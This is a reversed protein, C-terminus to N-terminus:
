FDAFVPQGVVKLQPPAKISYTYTLVGEKNLWFEFNTEGSIESVACLDSTLDGNLDLFASSQPVKLPPLQYDPPNEYFEVSYSDNDKFIWLGRKGGITEGFLDPSMDGNGDIVAPQDRFTENIKLYPSNTEADQSGVYIEINVRTSMKDDDAKRMVLVDMQSDVNFDGPVVAVIPRDEDSGLIFPKNSFSTEDRSIDIDAQLISLSKGEESLVFIDTAKDANIDGFAAILGNERGFVAPTVDSLSCEVVSAVMFPLITLQILLM